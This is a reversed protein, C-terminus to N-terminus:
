FLSAIQHIFIAAEHKDADLEAFQFQTFVARGCSLRCEVIVKICVASKRRYSAEWLWYMTQLKIQIELLFKGPRKFEYM